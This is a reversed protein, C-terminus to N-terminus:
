YVVFETCSSDIWNSSELPATETKVLVGCASYQGLKASEALNINAPYTQQEAIKLKAQYIKTAENPLSSVSSHDFTLFYNDPLIMAVYLDAETQGDVLLDLSVPETKQYHSQKPQINITAIKVGSNWVKLTRDSSGSFVYSGDPSFAVSHVSETHGKFTRIETGSSVEWLKMTKDSSGSLIYSGDPSFAVSNISESHGKFTHIKTFSSVDWLKMTSDASGSLVYRGDPSFAVSYIGIDHGYFTHIETGSSIDWLKTSHNYLNNSGSGSLAYRGDPSFAVSNIGYSHGKFTRIEAGSSVDWLKMTKDYSGSLVYHGDPSFTVSSVQNLNYINGDLWTIINEELNLHGKFTRIEAGSSVDWLKITNDVSGSLVYRGDPSFAASLVDDGHEKFTRIETGTDLEWLKMTKDISGSLIYRGDPSITVDGVPNLQMSRIPGITDALAINLFAIQLIILCTLKYIM